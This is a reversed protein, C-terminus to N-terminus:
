QGCNPIAVDPRLSLKGQVVSVEASGRLVRRKEGGGGQLMWGEYTVRMVDGKDRPPSIFSSYAYGGCGTLGGGDGLDDFGPDFKGSDHLVGWSVPGDPELGILSYWETCAGMGCYQGVGAFFPMRGFHFSMDDIFPTGFSGAQLVEYWVRVPRWAGAERDLYAVAAAGTFAHAGNFSETVILAYRSGGVHVLVLPDLQYDVKVGDPFSVSRMVPAARGFAAAFAAKLADPADAEAHGGMLFLALAGAILVRLWSMARVSMMSREM